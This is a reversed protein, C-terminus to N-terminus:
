SESSESWDGSFEGSLEVITIPEFPHTMPGWKHVAGYFSYTPTGGTEEGCIKCVIKM